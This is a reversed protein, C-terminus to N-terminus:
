VRKISIKKDLFRQMQGIRGELREGILEKYESPVHLYFDADEGPEARVLDLKPVIGHMAASFLYLIRLLGGLLKARFQFEETAVQALVESLGDDHLGEYRYYNTLAIYARGAHCVSTFSGNAIINLAQLGRYDPHARWSIDALLCAAERYRASEESENVGFLPFVKGTWDALEQAHIPSRARLMAMERAGSLLADQNKEDNSLLSYLYGERVGQASFIVQSPQMKLLLAHMTIAGYPLLARRNKSIAYYSDKGFDEQAIIRELFAMIDDFSLEYGQMMQLPYNTIDMYLRGIARWTGGVAYFNRDRGEDLFGVENIHRVAIQSARDFDHDSDEQLRLAGLPLTIGNGMRRHKVDVLELSGGGMDGVIGDALFTGSIVGFAAYKAEERGSLVDLDVGLISKAQKIFEPGNEAERAAATALAYLKTVGAQKALLRFRSLTALARQVATDDMRGTAAVGKGLGCSVKENFLVTPARLLGEYIVIRM